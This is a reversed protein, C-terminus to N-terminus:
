IKMWLMWWFLSCVLMWVLWNRKERLGNLDQNLFKIDLIEPDEKEPLHSGEVLVDMYEPNSARLFLTM